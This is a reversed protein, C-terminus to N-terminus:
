APAAEKVANLWSSRSLRRKKAAEATSLPMSDPPASNAGMRVFKDKAPHYIKEVGKKVLILEHNDNLYYGDREPSM